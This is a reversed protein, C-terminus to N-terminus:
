GHLAEAEDYAQLHLKCSVCMAFSGYGRHVLEHWDLLLRCFVARKTQTSM